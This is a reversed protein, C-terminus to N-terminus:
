LTFYYDRVRLLWENWCLLRLTHLRSCFHMGVTVFRFRKYM